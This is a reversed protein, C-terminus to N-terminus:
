LLKQKRCWAITRKYGERYDLISKFGLEMEARDIKFAINKCSEGVIHPLMSYINLASLFDDLINCAGAIWVPLRIINLKVGQADAIAQIIQNLTPIVKDAISYIKGDAVESLAVLHIAQVLHDIYTVSRLYNGHGFIYFRGSQIRKYIDVHRPAVPPGYFMAPRLSVTKIKGEVHYQQVIEEAQKKSIGYHSKPRCASDEDLEFGKGECFGQAANSSIYIFKRVNAGVAAELL